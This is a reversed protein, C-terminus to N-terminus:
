EKGEDLSLYYKKLLKKCKGHSIITDTLDQILNKPLNNLISPLLHNITRNGYTNINRPLLYPPLYDLTRLNNPRTKKELSPIIECEETLLSLCFRNFVNIVRCHKFLGTKDDHYKTKVTNPVITKLLALQLKYIQMLYTKYTRGYSTIGYCIIPDALSLYLM